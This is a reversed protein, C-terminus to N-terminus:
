PQVPHCSECSSPAVGFRRTQRNLTVDVRAADPGKAAV